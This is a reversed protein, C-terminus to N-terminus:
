FSFGRRFTMGRERIPPRFSSTKETTSRTSQRVTSINYETKANAGAYKRLDPNLIEFAGMAYVRCDLPENRTNRDRVEWRVYERGGDRRLNMRESLLGAFYVEDYGTSKDKPFHCYGGEGKAAKLRTHLTGKLTSVGLTFLPVRYRNNRTPKKVSPMGWAGRGVIPFIRRRTRAKTFKYVMDTNHGASDICTCAIGLEDGSAKRFTRVLYEDLLRWVESMGPDGYIVRYEIGWSQNGLGWGVVELELRDDQVDVGCTLLLVEEPVAQSGDPLVPYEERHTQVAEIEIVGELSEYTEGLATNTWGKIAEEGVSYAEIYGSDRICM